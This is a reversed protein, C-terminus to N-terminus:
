PVAAPNGDLDRFEIPAIGTRRLSEEIMARDGVIIINLHALDIFRKAAEVLQPRTVAGFRAPLDQYYTKPLQETYIAAVSESIAGVSAFRAPLSQVLSQVGQRIEDDTFPVEGQADRFQQMFAMLASDSKATIIGGGARYAGPGHGFAFRSGVGYSYGKIERIDHNLRSQFLGGLMQNMLVIPYYDPTSRPPGPLGIAFVSQESGPMDVLYITRAHPTPLPPYDWTPWSGGPAWGVFAAEVATRAASPQVDGAVVIVTRGPRYYARHFAQVDDRTVASVSSATAVRGYPHGGGYVTRRFVNTAVTTPEARDEKLGVLTQARIRELAEAPLLPNSLMDAVLALAPVFSSRLATFQIQGAEGEVSAEISTGLLQQAESFQEATLTPTGESLMRATMSAVGKRGTPEFNDSGGVFQMSFAVLPLDHKEVVILLAGNALRIETWPPVHVVPAPGPTPAVSRDLAAQAALPLSSIATACTLAFLRQISM